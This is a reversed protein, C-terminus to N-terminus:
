NFISSAAGTHHLPTPCSGWLRVRFPAAGHLAYDSDVSL